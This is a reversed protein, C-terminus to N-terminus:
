DPAKDEVIHYYLQRPLLLIIKRILRNFMGPTYIVHKGDLHQLSMRVVKDPEMWLRRFKMKRFRNDDKKNHFGTRTLGACLSQVQIGKSHVETHLSEMFTNIFAKTAAYISSGPAPLFAGLSSVTIIAGQKQELMRPLVAHTLEVMASIHVSIMKLISDLSEDKFLTNESFGATNVLVDINEESINGALIDTSAKSALNAAIVRVKIGFQKTLIEATNELRVRDTDSLILDYGKMALQTAYATGIGGTAGTIFATKRM